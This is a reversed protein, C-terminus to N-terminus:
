SILLTPLLFNDIFDVDSYPEINEFAMLRNLLCRKMLVAAVGCFSRMAKVWSKENLIGALFNDV